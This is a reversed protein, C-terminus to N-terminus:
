AAEAAKKLGDAFEAFNDTMDPIAKTILPAMPGTYVETMTFRSGDGDPEVRYTREGKFLGLPMGDSWVMRSPASMETVNLTFTRKPNLTSVLEVKSGVEIPGAISIITPNWSKWAEADSLLDWVTQPAAEIHREVHHNRAM